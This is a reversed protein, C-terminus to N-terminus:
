RCFPSFSAVSFGMYFPWSCFFSSLLRPEFWHGTPLLSSARGGLLIGPFVVIYERPSSLKWGRFFTKWVVSFGFSFSLFCDRSFLAESFISFGERGPSGSRERPGLLVEGPPSREVGGTASNPAPVREKASLMEHQRTPRAHRPEAAELPGTASPLLRHLFLM